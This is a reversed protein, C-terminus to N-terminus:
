ALALRAAFEDGLATFKAQETQYAVNRHDTLV